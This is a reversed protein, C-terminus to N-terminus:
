KYVKKQGYNTLHLIVDKQLKHSDFNNNKLQDILAM